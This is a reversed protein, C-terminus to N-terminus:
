NASRDSTPCARLRLAASSGRGTESSSVTAQASPLSERNKLESPDKGLPYYEEEGSAYHVFIRDRTRVACYSPITVGGPRQFEYSEVLFNARWGSATGRLIPLLSKGDAGVARVGAAAALTPAVDINAVLRGETRPVSTYGDWRMVLPVRIDEEYPAVKFRWRHEGWSFGNDSSFVILTEFAAVASGFRVETVGSLGTGTIVVVPPQDVIFSDASSAPGEPV